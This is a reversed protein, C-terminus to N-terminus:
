CLFNKRTTKRPDKFIENENKVLKVNPYRKKINAWKNKDIEFIKTLNTYKYKNYFDAHRAGVGMGIVACDIKKM